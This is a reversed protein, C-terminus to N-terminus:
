FNLRGGLSLVKQDDDIAYGALLSLRQTAHFVAGLAVDTNSDDYIDVYELAISVEFTPALLHRLGARLTYGNDDDSESGYGDVDVKVKDHLYAAIFNADTSNSLPARFGIGLTVDSIEAKADVGLDDFSDTEAYAYSAVLFASKSILGSAGLSFGDAGIDTDDFNYNNYAAQVYNYSLGEAMVSVPAFASLGLAALLLKNLPIERSISHHDPKSTNDARASELAADM